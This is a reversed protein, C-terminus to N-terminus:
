LIGCRPVAPALSRMNWECPGEKGIIGVAFTSKNEELILLSICVNALSLCEAQHLWPLLTFRNLETILSDLLQDGEPTAPDLCESLARLFGVRGSQGGGGGGGGGGM